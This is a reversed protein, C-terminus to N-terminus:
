GECWGCPMDMGTVVTCLLDHFRNDSLGVIDSLATMARGRHKLPHLCEYQAYRRKAGEAMGQENLTSLIM